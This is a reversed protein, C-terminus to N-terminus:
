AAKASKGLESFNKGFSWPWFMKGGKGYGPVFGSITKGNVRIFGEDKIRGRQTFLANKGSQMVTVYRPNDTKSLSGCM